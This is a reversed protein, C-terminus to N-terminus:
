PVLLLRRQPVRHTPTRRFALHFTRRRGTESQKCEVNFVKMRPPPDSMPTELPVRGPEASACAGNRSLKKLLNDDLYYVTLREILDAGYGASVGMGTRLRHTSSM